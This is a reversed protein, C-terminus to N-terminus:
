ADQAAIDLITLARVRGRPLHVRVVDGRARGIVAVGTPSLASIVNSDLSGHAGDVIYTETRGSEQDLVTVASGIGVVGGEAAGDVVEARALIEEVRALRAEIIPEDERVAMLEDNGSPEGFERASRLRDGHAERELRLEELQDQLKRYAPRTLPLRARNAAFRNSTDTQLAM